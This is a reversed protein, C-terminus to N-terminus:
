LMGATINDLTPNYQRNVEKNILKMLDRDIPYGIYNGILKGGLFVKFGAHYWSGDYDLSEVSKVVVDFGGAQRIETYKIRSVDPM